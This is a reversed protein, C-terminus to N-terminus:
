SASGQRLQGSAFYKKIKKKKRANQFRTEQSVFFELSKKFILPSSLPLQATLTASYTSSSSHEFPTAGQAPDVSKAHILRIPPYEHTGLISLYPDFDATVEKPETTIFREIQVFIM